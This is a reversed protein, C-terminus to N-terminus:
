NYAKIIVIKALDDRMSALLQRAQSHAREDLIQSLDGLGYVRSVLIRLRNSEHIQSCIWSSGFIKVKKLGVDVFAQTIKEATTGTIGANTMLLYCDCRGAIVLREAKKLEDSIDSLKLRIDRKNTFKCQIVFQGSLDDMNHQLWNGSFAGDRGGDNTDLYSEVTQGLIERTISLCLQQFSYWGLLHLDYRNEISM